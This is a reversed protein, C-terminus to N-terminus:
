QDESYFALCRLVTAAAVTLRVEILLSVAFRTGFHKNVRSEDGSGGESPLEDIYQQNDVFTQATGGDVTVRAECFAADDIGGSKSGMFRLHHFVGSGTLNLVEYWTNQVPSGQSLYAEMPDAVSPNGSVSSVVLQAEGPYGGDSQIPDIRM